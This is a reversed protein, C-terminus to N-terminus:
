ERKGRAWLLWSLVIGAGLLTSSLGDMLAVEPLMGTGLGTIMLVIGVFVLMGGAAPVLPGHRKPDRALFFFFVSCGAIVAAALRFVYTFFPGGTGETMGYRAAMHTVIHPPLFVGIFGSLCLVAALVLFTRPTKFIGLADFIKTAKM